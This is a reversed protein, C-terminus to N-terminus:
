IYTWHTCFILIMQILTSSSFNVRRYITYVGYHISHVTHIDYRSISVCHIMYTTYVGYHISHVTHIDYRSVSVGIFGKPLTYVMTYVTYQTYIM